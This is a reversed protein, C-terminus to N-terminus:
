AVEGHYVESCIEFMYEVREKLLTIDVNIITNHIADRILEFAEPSNDTTIESSVAFSDIIGVIGLIKRELSIIDDVTATKRLDINNKLM